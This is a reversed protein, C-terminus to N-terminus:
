DFSVYNNDNPTIIERKYDNLKKNKIVKRLKKQGKSNIYYDVDYRQRLQDTTMARAAQIEANCKTLAPLIFDDWKQRNRRVTKISYEMLKWFYIGVYEYGANETAYKTRVASIWELINDREYPITIPYLEGVHSDRDEGRKRFHLLAGKEFGDAALNQLPINHNFEVTPTNEEGMASELVFKDSLMAHINPYFERNIKTELFDCIPLDCVEQQQIMQYEYEPKITDEIMRSTPNKIEIMRGLYMLQTQDTDDFVNIVIGDPSAGIFPHTDHKICGYEKVYVQNRIEYISKSICECITGHIMPNMRMEPHSKFEPAYDIDLKSFIIENYKAIGALGCAAYITSATLLNNRDAYWEPSRQEPTIINGLKTLQEGIKELYPTLINKNLYENFMDKVYIKEEETISDTDEIDYRIIYDQILKDYLKEINEHITLEAMIEMDTLHLNQITNQEKLGNIFNTIVTHILRNIENDYEDTM